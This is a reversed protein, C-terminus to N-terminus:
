VGNMPFSFSYLTYLCICVIYYCPIGNQDHGLIGMSPLKRWSKREALIQGNQDDNDKVQCQPAGIKREDGNTHPEFGLIGYKSHISLTKNRAVPPNWPPELESPEARQDL